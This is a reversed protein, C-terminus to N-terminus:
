LFQVACREFSRGRRCKNGEEVHVNNWQVVWSGITIFHTFLCM